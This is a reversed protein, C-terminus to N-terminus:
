STPDSVFELDVPGGSLHLTGDVLEISTVLSLDDLFRMELDMIGDPKDCAMKTSYLSSLDVTSGTIVINGGWNNCIQGSIHDDEITVFTAGAVGDAWTGQADTASTLLWKGDFSQVPPNTCGTLVLAASAILSVVIKRM